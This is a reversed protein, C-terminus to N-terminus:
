REFGALFRILDTSTLIGVPSGSPDVVVVADVGSRYMARAATTLRAGEPVVPTTGTMAEGVYRQQLGLRDRAWVAVVMRDTLIGLCRDGDVVVLHRVGAAGFIPLADALRTDVDVAMIPSSMVDRVRATPESARPPPHHTAAM